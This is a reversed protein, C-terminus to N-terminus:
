VLTDPDLGQAAALSGFTLGFMAGLSAMSGLSPHAGRRLDARFHPPVAFLSRNGAQDGYGQTWQEVDSWTLKRLALLQDLLDALDHPRDYVPTSAYAATVM